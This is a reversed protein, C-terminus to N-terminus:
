RPRLPIVNSSGQPHREKEKALWHQENTLDKKAKRNQRTALDAVHAAFEQFRENSFEVSMSELVRVFTAHILLTVKGSDHDLLKLNARAPIDDREALLNEISPHKQPAIDTEIKYTKM